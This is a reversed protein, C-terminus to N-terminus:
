VVVVGAEGPTGDKKRSELKDSTDVSADTHM